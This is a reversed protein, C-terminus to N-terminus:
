RVQLLDLVEQGAGTAAAVDYPYQGEDDAISPDFGQDLLYTVMSANGTRAACHLATGNNLSLLPANILLPQAEILQRVQTEDGNEIAVAIQDRMDGSQTIENPIAKSGCGALAIAALVACCVVSRTSM